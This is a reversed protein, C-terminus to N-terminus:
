DFESEEDAFGIEQNVLEIWTSKEDNTAHLSDLIQSVKGSPTKLEPFALLLMALDRWDTGAKPQDRRNHFSIVKRAILEPPSMVLVDSIRQNSPLVDVARLDMLHRNGTKQIQFIRYGKDRVVERIRVAIHFRQSLYQRMEEALDAARPSMVDIEQTMRSEAVYANVATAGFVVADVRGRLFDLIAEHVTALPLPEGMAFESFTLVGANLM